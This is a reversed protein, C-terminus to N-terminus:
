IASRFKSTLTQPDIPDTVLARITTSSQRNLLRKSNAYTNIYFSKRLDEFSLPQVVIGFREFVGIFRAKESVAM